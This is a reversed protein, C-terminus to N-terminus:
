YQKQAYSNLNYQELYPEVEDLNIGQLLAYRDILDNKERISLSDQDYVYLLLLKVATQNKVIMKNTNPNWIVKNWLSSIDDSIMNGDDNLYKIEQSWRNVNHIPYDIMNDSWRLPNHFYELRYISENDDEAIFAWYGAM